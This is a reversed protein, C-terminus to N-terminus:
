QWSTTSEDRILRVSNEELWQKFEDESGAFRKPFDVQIFTCTPTTGDM